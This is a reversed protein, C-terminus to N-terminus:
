DTGILLRYQWLDNTDPVRRRQVDYPGFEFKRLDRLRASVGAESGGVVRRIGPVTRWEGDRMLAFVRQLQTTLRTGGFTPDFTQNMDRAYRSIANM